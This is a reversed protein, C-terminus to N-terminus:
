IDRCLDVTNHTKLQEPGVVIIWIEKMWLKSFFLSSRVSLGTTLSTVKTSQKDETKVQQEEGETNQATEKNPRTGTEEDKVQNGSKRWRYRLGAAGTEEGKSRSNHEQGTLDDASNTWTDTPEVSSGPYTVQAKGGSGDLGIWNEQHHWTGWCCCM